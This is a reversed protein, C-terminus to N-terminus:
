VVGAREAVVRKICPRDYMQLGSCFLCCDTIADDAVKDCYDPYHAMPSESFRSGDEKFSYAFKNLGFCKKAM